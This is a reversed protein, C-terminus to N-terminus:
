AMYALYFAHRALVSKRKPVDMAQLSLVRATANGDLELRFSFWSNQDTAGQATLIWNGDPMRLCSSALVRPTTKVQQM